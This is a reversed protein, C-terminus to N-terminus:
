TERQQQQRYEALRQRSQGDWNGETEDEVKGCTLEHTREHVLAGGVLDKYLRLCFSSSVVAEGSHNIQKAITRWAQISLPRDFIQSIQFTTSLNLFTATKKKFWSFKLSCTHTVSLLMLQVKSNLGNLYWEALRSVQLMQKPKM